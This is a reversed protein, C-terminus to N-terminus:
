APAPEGRRPHTILAMILLAASLVYVPPFWFLAMAPAPSAGALLATALVPRDGRVRLVLGALLVVGLATIFVIQIKAVTSLDGNDGSGLLAILAVAPTAALGALVLTAFSAIRRPRSMIPVGPTDSRSRSRLVERRWSLDAPVGSLVRRLVDVDFASRSVGREAADAAHEWADSELEERRAAAVDAPCSRTYWHVWRRCVRVALSDGTM